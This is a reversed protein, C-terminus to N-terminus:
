SDAQVHATAVSTDGGARFVSTNPKVAIYVFDEEHAEDAARPGEGGYDCSKVWILTILLTRIAGRLNM